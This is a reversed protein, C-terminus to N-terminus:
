WNSEGGPDDSPPGPLRQIYRITGIYNRPLSASSQDRSGGEIHRSSNIPLQEYWSEEPKMNNQGLAFAYIHDAGGGVGGSWEVRYWQRRERALHEEFVTASGFTDEADDDEVESWDRYGLTGGSGVTIVFTAGTPGYIQDGGGAVRDPETGDERYIRFWGKSLSAAVPTPDGAAWAEGLTTTPMSPQPAVPSPATQDYASQDRDAFAPLPDPRNLFPIGFTPVTHDTPIPNRVVALGVAWPPRVQRYFHM